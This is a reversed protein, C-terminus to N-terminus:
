SGLQALIRRLVEQQADRFPASLPEHLLVGQRCLAQVEDLAHSLDRVAEAEARDLRLEIDLTALEAAKALALQRAMESRQVAFGDASAVIREAVALVDQSGSGQALQLSLERLVGETHTEAELLLTTSVDTLVVRVSELAPDVLTDGWSALLEDIDAISGASAPVRDVEVWVQKGGEVPDVGWRDCLSAVIMLGRGTMATPDLFSFTPSVASGDQVTVRLVEAGTRVTVVLPQRGHLVANTVLETAALLLDELRDAFPTDAVVARLKARVEAAASATPQAQVRLVETVSDEVPGVERSV